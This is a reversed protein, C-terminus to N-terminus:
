LIHKLTTRTINNTVEIVVIVVIHDCEPINLVLM